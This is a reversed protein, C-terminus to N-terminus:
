AAPLVAYVFPMEFQDAQSLDCFDEGHPVKQVKLSQFYMATNPQLTRNRLGRSLESLNTCKNLTVLPVAKADPDLWKQQSFGVVCPSSCYCGFTQNGCLM